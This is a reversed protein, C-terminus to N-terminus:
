GRCRGAAPEVRRHVRGRVRCLARPGDAPPAVCGPRNSGAPGAPDHAPQRLYGQQAGDLLRLPQRQDEFVRWREDSLIRLESVEIVVRQAADNLRSVRKGTSPDKVYRLRNWVLRGLYLENDLIGTGRAANGAITSPGWAGGPPGSIGERNLAQAISKASRGAAYGAFIRRVVAAEAEDVRRLGHEPVGDRDPAGPVAAYGYCRGGGSRGQEVRGRLGRHTKLALDKLYLANMTGKLGVHLEGIEGEAVTVLRVGAFALQKLLGATHEQDRSLRDLGEALVLEFRRTRADELLRQYGPRLASAGSLAHDAYVETITWGQRGALERCLRVQDEISADRQADSSYRAYIVAQM